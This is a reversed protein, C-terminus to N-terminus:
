NKLPWYIAIFGINNNESALRDIYLKVNKEVSERQNISNKDRLKRFINRELKRKELIIM